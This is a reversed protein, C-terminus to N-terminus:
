EEEGDHAHAAMEATVYVQAEAIQVIVQTAEDRQMRHNEILGMFIESLSRGWARPAASAYTKDMSEEVMYRREATQALRLAEEPTV